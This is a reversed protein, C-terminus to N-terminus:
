SNEGDKLVEKYKDYVEEWSKVVVVENEDKNYKDAFLMTEINYDKVSLVNGIDNDIFLSVGEKDCIVDKRKAGMILKHYKFGYKKLWKKTMCKVKFTNARRTIFIIKNGEDYMKNIYLSSNDIPLVDLFFKSNRIYNLFRDVDLVNWYFMEMFSYANKNKYGKGNVHDIDFKFAEKILNENTKSITDDIDIGIIM